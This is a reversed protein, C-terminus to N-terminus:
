ENEQYMSDILDFLNDNTDDGVHDNKKEILQPKEEPVGLEMTDELDKTLAMEKEKTEQKKEVVEKKPAAKEKSVDMYDVNYELGLDQFYEVADGMTIEKVEPKARDSLDVLVNDEKEDEVEFKTVDQVEELSEVENKNSGYAKNRIDDVSVNNRSYSSIHVERKERVDEKKYNKDLIGYIPSIIPSPRFYPKEEKKEYTGYPHVPVHYSNDVGYLKSEHTSVTEVPPTYSVEQREVPTSITEERKEEEVQNDTNLVQIIQPEEIEIDEDMKFDNDNMIKFEERTKVKLTEDKPRIEFDQAKLEEEELEEVRDERRGPLVIKKAVPKEEKEKQVKKEKKPPEDVEVYEVEFLADKIKDLLGMLEGRRM